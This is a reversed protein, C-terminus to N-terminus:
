RKVKGRVPCNGSLIKGGGRCDGALSLDYLIARAALSVGDPLCRGQWPVFKPKFAFRKTTSGIREPEFLFPFVFM